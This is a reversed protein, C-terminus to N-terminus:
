ANILHMVYLMLIGTSNGFAVNSVTIGENKTIKYMDAPCDTSLNNSMDIFSSLVIITDIKRWWLPFWQFSGKSVDIFLLKSVFSKYHDNINLYKTKIIWTIRVSFSIPGRLRKQYVCIKIPTLNALAKCCRIQYKNLCLM